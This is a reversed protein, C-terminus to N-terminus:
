EYQPCYVVIATAVWWQAGELSLPTSSHAALFDAVQYPRPYPPTGLTTCINHGTQVTLAPNYVTLHEGLLRLYESDQDTPATTEPPPAPPVLQQAVKSLPLALWDTDHPQVPEVPAPLQSVPVPPIGPWDNRPAPSHWALWAALITGAVAIGSLVIAAVVSLVQRHPTGVTETDVERGWALEAPEPLRELTEDDM